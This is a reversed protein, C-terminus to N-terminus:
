HPQGPKAENLRNLFANYAALQEDDDDIDAHPSAPRPAMAVTTRRASELWGHTRSSARSDTSWMAFVVMMLAFMLADGAVWM